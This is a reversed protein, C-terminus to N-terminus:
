LGLEAALESPLRVMISYRAEIEARRSIITKSDDTVFYDVGNTLAQFVHRADDADPLIAKLQSLVPGKEGGSERKAPVNELLAYIVDDRARVEAPAKELEERTIHSTVLAILRSKHAQLLQLLAEQEAPRLDARAMGSVLCTDLYAEVRLPEDV